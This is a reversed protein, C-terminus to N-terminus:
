GINRIYNIKKGGILKNFLLEDLEIANINKLRYSEPPYLFKIQNSDILKLECFDQLLTRVLELSLNSYSLPLKDENYKKVYSELAKINNFEIIKYFVGTSKPNPVNVIIVIDDKVFDSECNHEEFVNDNPKDTLRREDYHTTFSERPINIEYEEFQESYPTRVKYMSLRDAGRLKENDSTIFKRAFNNFREYMNFKIFIGSMDTIQRYKKNIIRLKKYNVGNITIVPGKFMNKDKKLINNAKCLLRSINELNFYEAKFKNYDLNELGKENLKIIKILLSINFLFNELNKKITNINDKKYDLMVRIFNLKDSDSLRHQLLVNSITDYNIHLKSLLDYLDTETKSDLKFKTDIDDFSKGFIQNINIDVVKPSSNLQDLYKALEKKKTIRYTM